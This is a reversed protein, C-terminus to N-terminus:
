GEAPVIDDVVEGTLDQSDQLQGTSVDGDIHDTHPHGIHDEQSDWNQENKDGVDEDKGGDQPDGGNLPPFLGERGARGVESHHDDEIPSNKEHIPLGFGLVGQPCVFLFKCVFEDGEEISKQGGHEVGYDVAEPVFINLSSHLVEHNLFVGSLSQPIHGM